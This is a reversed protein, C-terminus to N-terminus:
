ASKQILYRYYYLVKVLHHLRRMERFAQLLWRLFELFTIQESKAQALGEKSPFFTIVQTVVDYEAKYHAIANRLRNSVAGDLIQYWSDEVYDQKRGFDIDAYQHLSKPTLDKGSNTMGIGPKFANHDGRKLVNNVGAVLVFLRSIVESLDKFLDKSEEFRSVSVRCPSRSAKPDSVLDLFLAARLPMQHSWLRPYLELCDHHANEIFKSAIMEDMFADVAARNSKGAQMVAGESLNSAELSLTPLEFPAMMRAILRFLGANLDQPKDSPLEIDFVRKLNSRFPALKGKAYMKLMTEFLTLRPQNEILHRLRQGVVGMGEDGILMMARMFPTLGMVYEGDYVPFDLHLDVFPNSNDFAEVGKVKTAGEIAEGTGEGKAEGEGEIRIAIPGTCHSCNFCLPIEPQSSVGVRCDTLGECTNCRVTM